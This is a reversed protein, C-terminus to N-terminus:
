SNNGGTVPGWSAPINAPRRVNVPRLTIGARRATSAVDRPGGAASPSAIDTRITMRQGDAGVLRSQIAESQPDFLPSAEYPQVAEPDIPQGKNPGDHHYKKIYKNDFDDSIYWKNNPDNWPEDGGEARTATFDNAARIFDVKQKDTYEDSTLFSIDTPDGLVNWEGDKQMSDFAKKYANDTTYSAWDVEGRTLWEYHEPTGIELDENLVRRLDLGWTTIDHAIYSSRGRLQTNLVGDGGYRRGGYDEPLGEGTWQANDTGYLEDIFDTEYQNQTTRDLGSDDLFQDNVIDLETQNKELDFQEWAWDRNNRAM